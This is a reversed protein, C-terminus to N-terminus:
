SVRILFEIEQHIKRQLKSVGDINKIMALREILDKGYQLKEDLMCILDESTFSM